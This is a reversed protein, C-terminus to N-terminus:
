PKAEWVRSDVGGADAAADDSRGAELGGASNTSGGAGTVGSDVGGAVGSSDAEDERGLTLFEGPSSSSSGVRWRARIAVM